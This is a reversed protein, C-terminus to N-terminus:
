HEVGTRETPSRRGCLRRRPFPHCEHHLFHLYTFFTSFTNLFFGVTITIHLPLAQPLFSKMMVGALQPSCKYIGVRKEDIRRRRTDAGQDLPLSAM